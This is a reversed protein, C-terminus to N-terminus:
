RDLGHGDARRSPTGDPSSLRADREVSDLADLIASQLLDYRLWPVFHNLDPIRQVQPARHIAHKEVFDVNSVPVLDDREGHIVYVDATIRSWLPVMRRLEPELALIEQNCVDLDSPVLWRLAWWNAVYQIWKTEELDPDVSSAVLILARVRPDNSMALQAAVPGGYSHGLLIVPQSPDGLEFVQHILAAQRAVSREPRDSGSRGYGPRDVSILHAREKLIPDELYRVYAKWSGPSGHILVVKPQNASGASVYGLPRGDPTTPPIVHEANPDRAMLAEALRENEQVFAPACAIWTLVTSTVLMTASALSGAGVLFAWRRRPQQGSKPEAMTM